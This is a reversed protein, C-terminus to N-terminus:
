RGGGGRRPIYRPVRAAYERYADGFRQTLEREELIVVLHIVPIALVALVWCGVYNAIAAYAFTALTIEVYRPHRILAYPGEQLLKGRKEADTELEPVGVLIRTTLYRRRKVAMFIAAAVLVVGLVVLPWRTGLDRGLLRDRITVLGVVSTAWFVTMAVLTGRVGVKRWFGVFPHVVFWWAVGPPLGVMIFVGLIYRFRDM